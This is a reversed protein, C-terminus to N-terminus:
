SKYYMPKFPSNITNFYEQVIGIAAGGGGIVTGVIGGLTAFPIAAPLCGIAIGAACGVIFGVVLGIGLGILSSITLSAALKSNMRALAQDDREQRTQPGRIRREVKIAGRAAKDPTLTATNGKVEAAIEYRTNKPGIFHLPTKEVTKGATNRFVLYGDEASLSGNAVTVELDDQNRQVDVRVKGSDGPKALAEGTTFPLMTIVALLAILARRLYKM